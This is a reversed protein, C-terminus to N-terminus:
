LFFIFVAAIEVACELHYANGARLLLIVLHEACHALKGHARLKAFLHLFDAVFVTQEASQAAMGIDDITLILHYDGMFVVHAPINIDSHLKQLRQRVIDAFVAHRDFIDYLEATVHARREFQASLVIYDVAVDLRLVYKDATVSHELKAVEADGLGRGNARRGILDSCIGVHCGLHVLTLAIIVPHIDVREAHHEIPKQILPAARKKRHRGM